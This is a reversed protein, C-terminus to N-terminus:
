QPTFQFAGQVEQVAGQNSFRGTYVMLYKGDDGAFVDVTVSQAHSDYTYRERVPGSCGVIMVQLGPADPSNHSADFTLHAGPRLAPNDLGGIITLGTMAWVSSPADEYDLRVSTNADSYRTIALEPATTRFRQYDGLDGRLLEGQGQITVPEEYGPETSYADPAGPRGPSSYSYSGGSFLCGGLALGATAAIVALGLPRHHM